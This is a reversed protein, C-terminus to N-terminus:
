LGTGMYTTHVLLYQGSVVPSAFHHTGVVLAGDLISAGNWM